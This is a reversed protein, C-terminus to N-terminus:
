KSQSLWTELDALQTFDLLSESLAELQEVGLQRVQAEVEAALPTFRRNLQRLILAAAEEQRGEQKGEQRGELLFAQAWPSERLVAMDWRLIQQVLDTDLVFSAFFALLPELNSLQQDAQLRFLAERVSAETGGGAMLPVFPLLSTLSREFVLESGVEWLNIVRYDQRAQMGMIESQYGTAIATGAPPPLINILVPYVLLNYREEALAAYARMRKPMRSQYRLQLESLVLFEGLQPSYVKILADSKRSVWQFEADIIEQAIVDTSQTVWQVWADPALGILRKSGIDANQSM